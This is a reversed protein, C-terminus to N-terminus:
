TRLGARVDREDDTPQYVFDGAILVAAPRREVLRAVARGTADTNGLWMGVQLDAMVAIVQGDWAGPLGPIGARQHSWDILRPEIGVGWVALAIVGVALATVWRKLRRRVQATHWSRERALHSGDARSMQAPVGGPIDPAHARSRDM